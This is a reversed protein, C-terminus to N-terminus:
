QLSQCLISVMTGVLIKMESRSVVDERFSSIITMEGGDGLTVVSLQFVAGTLDHSQSFGVRLVSSRWLKRKEDENAAVLLTRTTEDEAPRTDWVGLNSIAVSLMRGNPKTAKQDKFYKIWDKVYEMLGILHLCGPNIRKRLSVNIDAAFSYLNQCSYGDDVHSSLWQSSQSSTSSWPWRWTWRWPWIKMAGRMVPHSKVLPLWFSLTAGSVIDAISPGKCIDVNTNPRVDVASRIEVKVRESKSNLDSKHADLAMVLSALLVGHVTTKRERARAVIKQVTFNELAVSLIKTPHTIGDVRQIEDQTLTRFGAWYTAKPRLFTPLILQTLVEWLLLRLPPRTNPIAKVATPSLAKGTLLHCDKSPDYPISVAFDYIQTRDVLLTNDNPTSTPSPLPPAAASTLGPVGSALLEQVVANVVYGVSKGDGMSHMLSIGVVWSVTAHGGETEAESKLPLVWVRWLVGRVDFAREAESELCPEVSWGAPYVRVGVEVCGGERGEMNLTTFWSKGEEDDIICVRLNGSRWFTKTIAIELSDLFIQETARSSPIPQLQAYASVSYYTGLKHRGLSFLEVAGLPRLKHSGPTTLM